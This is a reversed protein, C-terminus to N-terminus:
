WLMAGPNQDWGDVPLDEAPMEVEKEETKVNNDATDPEYSMSTTNAWPEGFSAFTSLISPKYSSLSGNPSGGYNISEEGTPSSPPPSMRLSPHIPQSPTGDDFRMGTRRLKTDIVGDPLDENYDKYDYKPYSFETIIQDENWSVRRNKM